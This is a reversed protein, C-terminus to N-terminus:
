SPDGSPPVDRRMWADVTAIIRPRVEHAAIVADVSGVEVARQISHVADFEAAVQGLKEVRVSSRLELLETALGAREAGAAVAMRGMLDEVRPDRATLSNVAGTFVVAAAPAGGIVSAYSGEVALVTMHPNLAKSFVVFAGGHYRSIVCFVIQGTFNVIARGIEAGYELQLNRM